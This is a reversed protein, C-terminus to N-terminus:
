KSAALVFEFANLRGDQVAHDPVMRIDGGNYRANERAIYLGLGRGGEDSRTTYFANFISESFQIAVGPGNDWFVFSGGHESSVEVEIKSHHRRNDKKAVGLWHISNSLLNEVIQVIMGRVAKVRIIKKPTTIHWSIGQDKLATARSEFSDRIAQTLDFEVKRQRGSVSLPDLVRLRREITTLQAELSQFLSRITPPLSKAPSSRILDLAHKTARALEHAVIEVMLGVGALEIMREREMEKQEAYAQAKEYAVYMDNFSTQLSEVVEDEGRFRQKLEKINARVRRNYGEVKETTESLDIERLGKYEENIRDMWEKLPQTLFGHLIAILATKEFNDRLGERNTQDVLKPNEQRSIIVRGLIQDTNLLYGSSKFAQTNLDLWDDGKSGYPNVRFGDRYLMLGGTWSNVLERVTKLDGVDDLKTLIRRNFWYFEFDFPGLTSLASTPVRARVYDGLEHHSLDFEHKESYLRYDFEARLRPSGRVTYRGKCYGHAAKFLAQAIRTTSVIEDNLKLNIPFGRSSSLFPDVLRSFEGAALANVKKVDWDSALNRISLKTGHVRRNTKPEGTEVAIDVQDLM